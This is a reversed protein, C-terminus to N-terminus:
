FDYIQVMFFVFGPDRLDPASTTSTSFSSSTTSSAPPLPLPGPEVFILHISIMKLHVILNFFFNVSIESM